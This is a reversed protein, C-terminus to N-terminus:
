NNKLAEVEAKLAEVEKITEQLASWLIPIMEVQNVSQPKIEGKTSLEDKSGRVINNVKLNEQVEHALFGVRPTNISDLANYAAGKQNWNYSYVPISKIINTSCCVNSWCSINEKYRYDSLSSTYISHCCGCCDVWHPMVATGTGYLGGANTGGTAHGSGFSNSLYLTGIGSGGSTACFVNSYCLFSTGM